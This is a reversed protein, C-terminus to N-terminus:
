IKQEEDNAITLM